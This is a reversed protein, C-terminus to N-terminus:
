LKLWLKQLFQCSQKVIVRKKEKIQIDEGCLSLSDILQASKYYLHFKENIKNSNIM